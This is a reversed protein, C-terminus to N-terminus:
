TLVISIVKSIKGKIAFQKGRFIGALKETKFGNENLVRQWEL